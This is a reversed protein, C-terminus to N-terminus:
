VKRFVAVLHTGDKKGAEAIKKTYRWMFKELLDVDVTWWRNSTWTRYVRLLRSRKILYRISELRLNVKAEEVQKRLIEEDYHRYHKAEVPLNTSPVGIVVRGGPVVKKGLAKLFPTVANDKIHEMVEIVTVTDFKGPVTEADGVYFELEPYFAKAFSIAKESKDVGVCREVRSGLMGIFRGDGCGVDLISRMKESLAIERIRLLYAM